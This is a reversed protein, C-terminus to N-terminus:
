GWGGVEAFAFPHVAIMVEGDREAIGLSRLEADTFEGSRHAAILERAVEEFPNAIGLETLQGPFDVDYEHLLRKLQEAAIFLTWLRHLQRLHPEHAADVTM